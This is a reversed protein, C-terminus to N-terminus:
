DAILGTVKCFAEPRYVALAARLTARVVQMGKIFYDSHSDSVRIEVGQRSVLAAHQAFAGVLAEGAGLAATPIVPLGFLTQRGSEAPSGLIYVGDVTRMLRFTQWATPNMLIADPEAQGSERCKTIARAIPDFIPEDGALSESNIGGNELFGFINPADGDGNLLQDDLRQLLMLSLRNDIYGKVEDTDDLAEDSVPLYAPIKRVPVVRETLALAAEGFTAAEAKEVVNTSTYTTEEMYRFDSGDTYVVPLLDILAPPRQVSMQVHGSRIPAPAWGASTLFNAKMEALDHPVEVTPGNPEMAGAKVARDGLTGRAHWAKQESSEPIIPETNYTGPRPREFGWKQQLEEIRDNNAKLQRLKEAPDGSLSYIKNVDFSKVFEARAQDTVANLEMWELKAAGREQVM